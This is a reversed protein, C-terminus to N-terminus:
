AVQMASNIKAVYRQGESPVYALWNGGGAKKAANVRGLGQNYAALAQSWDGTRDYMASLYRGAWPIAQAPNTPDVLVPVGYGPAAATSALVQAIGIAGTASRVRGDIVEPRFGSETYLLAVLMGAPIGNAREAAEIAPLYQGAKRRMAEMSVGFLLLPSFSAYAAGPNVLAYVGAAVVALLILARM